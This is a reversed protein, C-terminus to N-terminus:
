VRWLENCPTYYNSSVMNLGTILMAHTMLSEGYNLRDGKDLGLGSFGFVLNYDLRNITFSFYVKSRDKIAFLIFM